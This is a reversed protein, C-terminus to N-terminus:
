DIIPLPDNMDKPSVNPLWAGAGGGIASENSEGYDTFDAFDATLM